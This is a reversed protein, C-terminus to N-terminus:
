HVFFGSFLYQLVHLVERKGLKVAEHLVRILQPDTFKAGAAELVWAVEYHGQRVADHLPTGGWRDMVSVRAGVTLLYSVCDIQGESAAM